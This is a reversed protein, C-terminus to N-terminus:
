WVYVDFIYNLPNEYFTIPRNNAKAYTLMTIMYQIADFNAPYLQYWGGADVDLYVSCDRSYASAHLALVHHNYRWM